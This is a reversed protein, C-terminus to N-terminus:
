DCDGTRVLLAENEYFGDEYVVKAGLLDDDNNGTIAVTWLFEPATGATVTATGGGNGSLWNNIATQFSGATYGGGPRAGLLGEGNAKVLDLVTDSHFHATHTCAGPESPSCSGCGADQVPDDSVTASPLCAVYDWADCEERCTAASALGTPFDILVLTGGETHIEDGAYAEQSVISNVLFKKGQRTVIFLSHGDPCIEPLTGKKLLLQLRSQGIPKSCTLVHWKEPEIPVGAQGDICVDKFRDHVALAIGCRARGPFEGIMGAMYRAAFYVNEQFPDDDTAPNILKFEGSYDSLPYMKDAGTMATPPVLWAAATPDFYIFESYKAIEPNYYDPNRVTETGRVTERQIVSPILCDEFTEGPAPERFRRPHDVLVFMYKGIKRVSGIEPLMVDPSQFGLKVQDKRYSEEFATFEQSGIFILEHNQVTLGMAGGATRARTYLAELHQFTLISTPPAYVPYKGIAEPLGYAGALSVNTVSRQFALVSWHSWIDRTWQVMISEQQRLQKEREYKFALDVKCFVPTKWGDRYLCASVNRSGYPIEKFQVCCPNYGPRAAKVAQWNLVENEGPRSVDLIVENLTDGMGSPFERKTPELVKIFPNSHAIQQYIVQSIRGREQVMNTIVTTPDADAPGRSCGLTITSM